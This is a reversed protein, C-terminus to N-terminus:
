VGLHPLLQPTRREPILVHPAGRFDIITASQGRGVVIAVRGSSSRRRQKRRSLARARLRACRANAVQSDSQPQPASEVPRSATVSTEAAPSPTLLVRLDAVRDLWPLNVGFRWYGQGGFTLSLLSTHVLLSLLLALTLRRRDDRM